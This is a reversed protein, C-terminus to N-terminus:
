LASDATRLVLWLPQAATLNDLVTFDVQQTVLETGNTKPLEGDLKFAPTVIQFQAFGTSLAEGSTFTLTAALETDALYADGITQSDYEITMSGTVERLGYTPHAM